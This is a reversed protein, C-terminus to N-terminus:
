CLTATRPLVLPHTNYTGSCQSANVANIGWVSLTVAIIAIVYLWNRKM